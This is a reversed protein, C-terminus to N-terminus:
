LLNDGNWRLIFILVILIVYVGIGNFVFNSAILLITLFIKMAIEINPNTVFKYLIFLSILTTM